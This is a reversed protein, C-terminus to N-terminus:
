KKESRALQPAACTVVNAPFAKRWACNSYCHTLGLNGIPLIPAVNPSWTTHPHPRLSATHGRPGSARPRYATATVIGFFLRMDRLGHKRTHIASIQMVTLRSMVTVKTRLSNRLHSYIQRFVTSLRVMATM